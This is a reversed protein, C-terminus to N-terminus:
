GFCIIIELRKSDKVNKFKRTHSLGVKKVTQTHIFFQRWLDNNKNEKSSDGALTVRYRHAPDLLRFSVAGARSCM